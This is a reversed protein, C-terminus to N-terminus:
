VESNEANQQIEINRQTSNKLQHQIHLAVAGAFATHVRSHM